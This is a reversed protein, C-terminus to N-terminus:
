LWPEWRPSIGSSLIPSKASNILSRLSKEFGSPKSASVTPALNKIYELLINALKRADKPMSSPKLLKSQFFMCWHPHIVGGVEAASLELALTTLGFALTFAGDFVMPQILAIFNRALGFPAKLGIEMDVNQSSFRFKDTSVCATQSCVKVGDAHIGGLGLLTRVLSQAGLKKAFSLRFAWFSEATDASACIYRSMIDTAGRLTSCVEYYARLHAISPDEATSPNTEGGQCAKIHALHQRTCLLPGDADINLCSSRLNEIDPLTVLSRPGNRLSLCPGAPFVLWPEIRLRRRQATLSHSLAHDVIAFFHTASEHVRVQTRQSASALFTQRNGEATAFEIRKEVSSYNQNADTYPGFMTLSSHLEPRPETFLCAYQGPVELNCSVNSTSYQRAIQVLMHPVLVFPYCRPEKKLAIKWRVLRCIITRLTVVSGPAINFDRAFVSCYNAHLACTDRLQMSSASRLKDCFTAPMPKNLNEMSDCCSSLCSNILSLHKETQRPQFCAVLEDCLVDMEFSLSVHVCRMHSEILTLSTRLSGPVFKSYLAEAHLVHYLAQPYAVAVRILCACVTAKERELLGSLLYYIWPVWIWSPLEDLRDRLTSALDEYEQNFRVLCLVRAIGGICALQHGHEVAALYCKISYKLLSVHRRANDCMVVLRAYQSECLAAWAFWARGYSSCIVTAASFSVHADNFQGLNCFFDGKLRHLEARQEFYFYDMSTNLILHLGRKAHVLNSVMSAHCTLIQERLKGFADDVDMRIALACAENSEPFATSIALRNKRAMKVTVSATWPSDHLLLVREPSCWSIFEGRVFAFCFERWRMINDWSSMTEWENPLRNRWTYVMARLDPFTRSRSHEVAEHLLQGSEHVEILEHFLQLLPYHSEPQPPPLACWAQLSIEICTACLEEVEDFRRDAVAVRITQLKDQPSSAGLDDLLKRKNDVDLKFFDWSQSKWASECALSRRQSSSPWMLDSMPPFPMNSLVKWQSLERACRTWENECFELAFALPHNVNPKSASEESSLLHVSSKIVDFYAQQAEFLYGYCQLQSAIQSLTIDSLCPITVLGLDHAALQELLSLLLRMSGLFSKADFCNIKHSIYAEEIMIMIDHRCNYKSALMFLVDTGLFSSMELSNTLRLLVHPINKASTRLSTRSSPLQHIQPFFDAPEHVFGSNDRSTTAFASRGSPLSSPIRISISHRTGILQKSIALGVSAKGFRAIALHSAASVLTQFINQALGLHAHTLEKLSVLLQAPNGVCPSSYVPAKQDLGKCGLLPLTLTETTVKPSEHNISDLLVEVIVVLWFRNSLPTWDCNLLGILKTGICGVSWRLFRTRFEFRVAANPALLGAAFPRSSAHATNIEQVAVNHNPSRLKFSFSTDLRQLIALFHCLLPQADVDDLRDVNSMIESFAIREQQTLPSYTTCIWKGVLELITSLLAVSDSREILGFLLAVFPRRLESLMRSFVAGGILNICVNLAQVVVSTSAEKDTRTAHVIAQEGVRRIDVVGRALLAIVPTAVVDTNRNTQQKSNYVIHRTALHQALQMLSNSYNTVFNPMQKCMAQLLDLIPSLALCCNDDQHSRDTGGLDKFNKTDYAGICLNWKAITTQLFREITLKLNLYFACLSSNAAAQSAPYLTSVLVLLQRLKLQIGQHLIDFCPFVLQQAKTINDIFFINPHSGAELTALFIDLCTSLLSVSYPMIESTLGIRYTHPKSNVNSSSRDTRSYSTTILKELYSFRIHVRPWASLTVRFLSVCRTALQQVTPEKNDSSFLALRVLFNILLEIMATSLRFEDIIPCHPTSENHKPVHHIRSGMEETSPIAKKSGPTQLEWSIVLDALSVALQRNEIPCNPPLGLRNLSNVMQPVFQTRYAYFLSPHRIILQWMHILQPLAHGEEYMIKKTWKIAKIFDALPLRTPLSPVLM